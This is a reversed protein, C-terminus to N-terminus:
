GSYYLRRGDRSWVPPSLFIDRCCVAGAAIRKTSRGDVRAVYLGRGSIYALHKGTPSWALSSPRHQMVPAAAVRRPRGGDSRIVWIGSRRVFAIRSGDPAWVPTRGTTLTRRHRGDATLVNLRVGPFPGFNEGYVIRRGGPAWAAPVLEAGWLVAHALSTISTGDSTAVYLGTSTVNSEFRQFLLRRGGPSWSPHLARDLVKRQESGDSNITWADTVACKTAGPYCGSYDWVMYLLRSGDPSWAPSIEERTGTTLRRRDSGDVNMVWIESRAGDTRVFAIKLGDPSVAPASEKEPTVTLNRRGRGDAGVVFIDGPPQPPAAGVPTAILLALGIVASLGM